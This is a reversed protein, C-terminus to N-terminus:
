IKTKSKEKKVNVIIAVYSVMVSTKSSVAEVVIAGKYKIIKGMVMGLNPLLKTLIANNKKEFKSFFIRRSIIM